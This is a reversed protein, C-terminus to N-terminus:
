LHFLVDKFTVTGLQRILQRPVPGLEIILLEPDNRSLRLRRQDNGTRAAALRTRDRVPNRVQYLM